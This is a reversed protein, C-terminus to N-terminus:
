RAFVEALLALAAIHASERACSEYAFGLGPDSVSAYWPRPFPGAAGEEDHEIGWEIPNTTPVGRRGRQRAREGAVRVIELPNCPLWAFEPPTVDRCIAGTPPPLPRPSPTYVWWGPGACSELARRASDPLALFAALEEDTPM